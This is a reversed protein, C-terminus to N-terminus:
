HMLDIWKDSARLNELYTFWEELSEVETTCKGPPDLGAKHFYPRLPNVFDRADSKMFTPNGPREPNLTGPECVNRLMLYAEEIKQRQFLKRQKKYTLKKSVWDWNLAVLGAIGLVMFFTYIGNLFGPPLTFSGIMEPGESLASELLASAAAITDAASIVHWIIRGYNRM